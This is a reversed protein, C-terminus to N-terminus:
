SVLFDELKKGGAIQTRLWGPRPGIGGWSNGAGDTYSKYHRQGTANPRKGSATKRAGRPASAKKSPASKRSGSSFIDSETLGYVSVAERIRGVVEDIEKRRVQQAQEQLKEIQGIIDAYSKSV